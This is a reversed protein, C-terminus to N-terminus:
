QAMLYWLRIAVLAVASGIWARHESNRLWQGISWERFQLRVPRLPLVRPVKTKYANWELPFLVALRREESHIAHWYLWAVPIAVLALTLPNQILAGFGLMMLFSGLYLPHRVLAYPGTTALQRQKRLTGAAWTRVLLGTLILALSCAVLPNTLALVDHPRSHLVVIDGAVLLGFLGVSIPVRRAVCRAVFRETWSSEPIVDGSAAALQSAM